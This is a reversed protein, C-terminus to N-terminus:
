LKFPDITLTNKIDGVTDLSLPNSDAPGIYDDQMVALAEQYSNERGMGVSLNYNNMVEQVEYLKRKNSKNTLREKDRINYYAKLKWRDGYISSFQETTLEERTIRYNFPGCSSNYPVLTQNLVSPQLTVYYNYFFLLYRELLDMDGLWTEDYDIEFMAKFTAPQSNRNFVPEWIPNNYVKYREYGPVNVKNEDVFFAINRRLNQLGPIQSYGYAMPPLEVDGILPDCEYEVNDPIDFGEIPVGLMYELMAPNRLDAVLRWPINKDISFGYHSAIDAILSFNRDNFTYSKNFDDDYEDSSIEIILGSSYVPSYNSEIFGSLTVPGAKVMLDSMFEDFQNIFDSINKVKKNRGNEYLFNDYFVPYISERMYRDYANEAPQWAKFVEPKAWPSDKFIINKSALERAKKAFDHWADAVFNLAYNTNGEDASFRLSKLRRLSPMVANGRNNITGYHRENTWTRVFNKALSDNFIYYNYKIRQAFIDRAGLQNSGYSYNEPNTNPDVRPQRAM